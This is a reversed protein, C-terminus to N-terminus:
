TNAVFSHEVTILCRYRCDRKTIEEEIKRKLETEQEKKYEYPVVLDFILNICEEGNVFRFDHISAKEDSRKVIECIVHKLELIKKDNVEIPDMHIVLFIGMTRLIEREIRDITTHAEEMGMEKSVEAHITAMTHTPGYNHVILDHSGEIGEYREVFETIEKFLEPTAAQGILPELTEKAIKLGSWLVVVSVAVGMIGDIQLGTVKATVISAVTALTIMVDGFADASAAKLVASHIRRDLSRNFVGLWIKILISISLIGVLIWNAHVAEPNLIKSISNKMFSLGVQLVLFAVVLAAIYEYRGHGFPHEKDAPRNAMKVGLYSIISSAADSLNNFADAMVSISNILMGITIKVLFLFVNCIVGVVSSLIGYSVRVSAAQAGEKEKIFLRVLLETM